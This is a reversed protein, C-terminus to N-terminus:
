KVEGTEEDIVEAVGEEAAEKKTIPNNFDIWCEGIMTNTHPQIKLKGGDFETATGVNSFFTKKEGGKEYERVTFLKYKNKVGM